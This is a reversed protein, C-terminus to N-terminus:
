FKTKAPSASRQSLSWPRGQSGVLVARTVVMVVHRDLLFEVFFTLLTVVVVVAMKLSETSQGPCGPLATGSSVNVWECIDNFNCIVKL